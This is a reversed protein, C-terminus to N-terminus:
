LLTFADGFREVSHPSYAQCLFYMTPVERTTWHSLNRAGLALPGPNSGQDPFWIGSDHYFYIYIEIFNQFLCVLSLFCILYPWAQIKPSLILAHLPALPSKKKPHYFRAIHQHHCPTALTFVNTLVGKVLCM